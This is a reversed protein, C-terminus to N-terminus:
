PCGSEREYPGIGVDAWRIAGNKLFNKAYKNIDFPATHADGGVCFDSAPLNKSAAKSCSMSNRPATASTSRSKGCRAPEPEPSRHTHQKLPNRLVVTQEAGALRAFNERHRWVKIHQGRALINVRHKRFCKVSAQSANVRVARLQVADTFFVVDADRDHLAKGAASQKVFLTRREAHAQTRHLANM